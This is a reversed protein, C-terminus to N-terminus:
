CRGIPREAKWKAKRGAEGADKWQISNTLREILRKIPKEVFFLFKLTNTAARSSKTTKTQKFHLRRVNM